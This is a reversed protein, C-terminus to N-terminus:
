GLQPQQLFSLPNKLLSKRLKPNLKDKRARLNKLIKLMSKNNKVLTVTKNKINYSFDNLSAIEEFAIVPTGLALSELVCNPM